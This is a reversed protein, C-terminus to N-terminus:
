TAQVLPVQLLEPRREPRDFPTGDVHKAGMFLMGGHLHVLDYDVVVRGEEIGFLPFAKRLIDQTEGAAWPQLGAVRPGDNLADAFRPHLPTVRFGRDLVYDIKQAGPAVPHSGHWEVHGLFEFKVLPMAGRPDAYSVITGGFSDGTGFVFERTVYFPLVKGTGTRDEQPRLEVALSVWKRGVIREKIEDSTM